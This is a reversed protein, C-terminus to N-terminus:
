RVKYNMGICLFKGVLSGDIPALLRCCDDAPIYNLSSTPSSSALAILEKARELGGVVFFERANDAVSTLDCYGGISLQAVLKTKGNHEISALRVM